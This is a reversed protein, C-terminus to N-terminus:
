IFLEIISLNDVITLNIKLRVVNWILSLPRLRKWKVMVRLTERLYRTMLIRLNAIKNLEEWINGITNHNISECHAKLAYWFPTQGTNYGDEMMEASVKAMKEAAAKIAKDSKDHGKVARSVMPICDNVGLPEPEKEEVPALLFEQYPKRLEARVCRINLMMKRVENFEDGCGAKEIKEVIFTRFFEQEEVSLANNHPESLENIVTAYKEVAEAIMDQTFEIEPVGSTLIASGIYGAVKHELDKMVIPERESLERMPPLEPQPEEPMPPQEFSMFHMNEYEAQKDDLPCNVTLLLKNAALIVGTSNMIMKGTVRDICRDYFDESYRGYDLKVLNELPANDLTKYCTRIRRAAECMAKLMVTHTQIYQDRYDSAPMGEFDLAAWKMYNSFKLFVERTFEKGYETIDKEEYKNPLGLLTKCCDNITKIPFLYDSNRGITNKEFDVMGKFPLEQAMEVAFRALPDHHDYTISISAAPKVMNGNVAAFMSQREQLTLGVYAQVCISKSRLASPHLFSHKKLKQLAVALGRTRHQGDFLKSFSEGSFVLKGNLDLSSDDSDTNGQIENVNFFRAIEEEAESDINALIPPIVWCTNKELNKILYDAFAEARKENCTRQSRDMASGNDDMQNFKVLQGATMTFLYFPHSQMGLIAPVAISAPSTLTLKKM